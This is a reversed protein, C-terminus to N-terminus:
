PPLESGFSLDDRSLRQKREMKIERTGAAPRSLDGHRTGQKVGPMLSRNRRNIPRILPEVPLFEKKIGSPLTIKFANGGETDTAGSMLAKCDASAFWAFRTALTIQTEPRGAEDQDEASKDATGLVCLAEM